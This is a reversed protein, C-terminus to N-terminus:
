RLRGSVFSANSNLETVETVLYCVKTEKAFSFADCGAQALCQAACNEPDSQGGTYTRTRGVVETDRLLVFRGSNDATLVRGAVPKRTERAGVSPAFSVPAPAARRASPVPASAPAMAYGEYTCEACGLLAATAAAVAIPARL